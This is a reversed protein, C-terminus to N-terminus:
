LDGVTIIHKDKRLTTGVRCLSSNAAAAAAAPRVTRQIDMKEQTM